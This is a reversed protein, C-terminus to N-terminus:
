TKKKKKEPLQMSLNNRNDQFHYNGWNINQLIELNFRDNENLKVQKLLKNKIQLEASFQEDVPSDVMDKYLGDNNRNLSPFM